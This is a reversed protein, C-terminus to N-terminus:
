GGNMEEEFLTRIDDESMGGILTSISSLSGLAAMPDRQQPAGAIGQMLADDSLGLLSGIESEMMAPNYASEERQAVLPSPSPGIELEFSSPEQPALGYLDSIEQQRSVPPQPTRQELFAMARPVYAATEPNLRRGELVARGSATGGNYHALVAEVNGRYQRMLDAVMKGAAETAAVPDTPDAGGGYARWTEPIFQYVGRAQKPSVQWSHSKEGGMRIANLINAPLGYREEVTSALQSLSPDDYRM